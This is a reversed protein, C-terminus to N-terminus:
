IEKDAIYSPAKVLQMVCLPSLQLQQQSFDIKVRLHLSSELVRVSFSAVM